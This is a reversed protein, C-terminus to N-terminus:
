GDDSKTPKASEKQLSQLSQLAWLCHLCFLGYQRSISIEFLSVSCVSVLGRSFSPVSFRARWVCSVVHCVGPYM